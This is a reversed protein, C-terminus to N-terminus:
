RDLATRVERLGNAHVLAPAGLATGLADLTRDLAAVRDAPGHTWRYLDGHFRASETLVVTSGEGRPAVEWTVCGGVAPAEGERVPVVCRVLKRGEFVEVTEWRAVDGDVDTELWTAHGRLPEGPATAALDTRWATVAAADTGALTGVIRWADSPPVDYGAARVTTAEPPLGGSCSVLLSLLVALPM